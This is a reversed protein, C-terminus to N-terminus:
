SYFNKAIKGALDANNIILSVNAKLTKNNSFNNIEKILFPTLAKGNIKNKEARVLASNIWENIKEKSIANIEPVKNFILISKNHKLKSNLKLFNGIDSVEKFNNDVQHNTESYWFGPMYDTKYGIRTIGLTELLEYTKNLDLISKAGSCIVYNAHESLSYLDASVDYTNEANLHVGGIGGTAFFKIGFISAISITSAVTTAANEKKFISLNINHNSVKQVNNDKALINIDDENLGIKVKGKIIGITAAVSGNDEVANISEKAVKINDPYPLGHSILTSELAVIPKKLDIAKQVNNSIEFLNNM